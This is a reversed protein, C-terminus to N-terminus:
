NCAYEIKDHDRVFIETTIALLNLFYEGWVFIEKDNGDLSSVFLFLFEYRYQRYFNSIVQNINLPTVFM